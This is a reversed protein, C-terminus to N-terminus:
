GRNAQHWPDVERWERLEQEARELGRRRGPDDGNVRISAAARRVADELAEDHQAARAPRMSIIRSALKGAM